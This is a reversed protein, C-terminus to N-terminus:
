SKDKGGVTGPRRRARVAGIPVRSQDRLVARVGLELEGMGTVSVTTRFGSKEAGPVDPFAAEIDPRRVAVPARKVVNGEQVVEVAVVPSSRGLVWGILDVLHGDIQSGPQPVEINRGWLREDDPVSLAIVGIEIVTM